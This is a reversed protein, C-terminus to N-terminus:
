DFDHEFENAADVLFTSTYALTPGGGFTLAVMAAELIEQKTAGAEYAKYVHYVICFQCRNYAGIAVSMLEKTKTDLARPQYVDGMFGMFANVDAENTASVNGVGNMFDNLIIRVDQM